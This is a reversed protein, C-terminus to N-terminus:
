VQGKQRISFVSGALGGIMRTLELECGILMTGFLGGLGLWFFEQLGFLAASGSSTGNTTTLLEEFLGTLSSSLVMTSDHMSVGLMAMRVSSQFIDRPLPTLGRRNMKMKNVHKNMGITVKQTTFTRVKRRRV